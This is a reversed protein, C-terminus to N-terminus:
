CVMAYWLMAYAYCVSCYICQYMWVYILCMDTRPLYVEWTWGDYGGGGEGEGKGRAGFDRRWHWLVFWAHVSGEARGQRVGWHTTSSPDMFM